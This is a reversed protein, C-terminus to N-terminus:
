LGGQELKRLFIWDGGRSSLTGPRGNEVGRVMERVRTGPLVLDCADPVLCGTGLVQYWAGPALYLWCRTGPVHYCNALVRYRISHVLYRAGPIFYRTGSVPYRTSPILLRGLVLYGAYPM